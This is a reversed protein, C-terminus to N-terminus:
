GQNQGSEEIAREPKPADKELKMSDHWNKIKATIKRRSAYVVIISTGSIFLFVLGVGLANVAAMRNSDLHIPGIFFGPKSRYDHCRACFDKHAQKSGHASDELHCNICIKMDFRESFDGKRHGSIKGISTGRLTGKVMVEAHCNGCTEEINAENV